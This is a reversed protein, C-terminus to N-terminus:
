KVECTVIFGDINNGSLTYNNNNPVFVETNGETKAKIYYVEYNKSYCSIKLSNTGFAYNKIESIYEELCLNHTKM